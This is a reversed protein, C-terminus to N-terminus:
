ATLQVKNNLKKNYAINIQKEILKDKKRNNPEQQLQFILYGIPYIDKNIFKISYSVNAIEKIEAKYTILKIKQEKKEERCLDQKEVLLKTDVIENIKQEIVEISQMVNQKKM